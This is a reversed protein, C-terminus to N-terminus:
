DATSGRPNIKPLDLSHLKVHSIKDYSALVMLNQSRAQFYTSNICNERKKKKREEESQNLHTWSHTKASTTCFLLSHCCNFGEHHHSEQCFFCLLTNLKVKIELPEAAWYIWTFVVNSGALALPNNTFCISKPLMNSLNEAPILWCTERLESSKDAEYWSM